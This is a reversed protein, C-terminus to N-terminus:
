QGEKSRSVNTLAHDRGLSDGILAVLSATRTRTFFHDGPLTHLTFGGATLDAWREISAPATYSDDRGAFATIPCALPPRTEYRYTEVLAFDARLTPLLTAMLTRSGLVSAASGNYAEIQEIFRDDPLEHLRSPGAAVHPAVRAAVFLRVPIALARSRLWRALEFAIVAGMSHGFLALDCDMEHRIEEGVAEVLPELRSFPAERIRTDRGPLRVALLQVSPPLQRSWSHFEAPGAGACAFCCLTIRPRSTSGLRVLDIRSAATSSRNM